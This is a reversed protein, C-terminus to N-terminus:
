NKQKIKCWHLTLFTHEEGQKFDAWDEFQVGCETKQGVQKVEVRHRRLSAMKGEFMVAGDRTVRVKEAM